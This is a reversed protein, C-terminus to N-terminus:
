FETKVQGNIITTIRTVQGDRIVSIIIDQGKFLRKVETYHSYNGLPKNDISYVSYCNFDDIRKTM